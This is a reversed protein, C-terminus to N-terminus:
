PIFTFASLITTQSGLSYHGEPDIREGREVESETGYKHLRPEPGLLATAETPLDDALLRQRIDGWTPMHSSTPIIKVDISM